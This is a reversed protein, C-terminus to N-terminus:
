LIGQHCFKLLCKFFGPRVLEFNGRPRKAVSALEGGAALALNGTMGEWDVESQQHAPAQVKSGSNRSNLQQRLVAIEQRLQWVQWLM